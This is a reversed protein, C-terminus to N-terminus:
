AASAPAPFLSQMDRPFSLMVKQTKQTTSEITELVQESMLMFGKRKRM